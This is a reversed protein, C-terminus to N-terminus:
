AKLMLTLPVRKEQHLYVWKVGRDEAGTSSAAFTRYMPSLAPASSARLAEDPTFSHSTDNLPVEEEVPLYREMPLPPESRKEDLFRTYASQGLVLREVDTVFM